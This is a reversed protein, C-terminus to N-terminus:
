ETGLLDSVLIKREVIYAGRPNLRRHYDPEYRVEEFGRKKYWERSEEAAEWVHATVTKVDYEKAAVRILQRLMTSALGHSRYPAYTAVTAIYLSPENPLTAASASSSAKVNGGLPMTGPSRALLRCRIGSVVNGPRQSKPDERWCTALTLAHAIPDTTIETYFANSYPVPLLISILRRFEPLLDATVRSIRANPPLPSHKISCSPPRIQADAEPHLSSMIQSKGTLSSDTGSLQASLRGDPNCDDDDPIHADSQHDASRDQQAPAAPKPKQQLWATIQSQM